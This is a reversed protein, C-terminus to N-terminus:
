DRVECDEKLIDLLDQKLRVYMDIFLDRKVYVLCSLLFLGVLYVLYRFYKKLTEVLFVFTSGFLAFVVALFLLFLFYRIIM